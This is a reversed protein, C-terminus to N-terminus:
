LITLIDERVKAFYIQLYVFLFAKSASKLRIKYVEASFITFPCRQLQYLAVLIDVIASFPSLKLLLYVLKDCVVFLIIFVHIRHWSIYILFNNM